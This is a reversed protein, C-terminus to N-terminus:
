LSTKSWLPCFCVCLLCVCGGFRFRMVLPPCAGAWVCGEFALRRGMLHRGRPRGPSGNVSLALRGRPRREGTSSGATAAGGLTPM